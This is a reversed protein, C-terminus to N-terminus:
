EEPKLGLQARLPDDVEALSAGLLRSWGDLTAVNTSLRYRIVPSTLWYDVGVDQPQFATTFSYTAAPAQAPKPQDNKPDQAQLLLGAALVPWTYWLSTM